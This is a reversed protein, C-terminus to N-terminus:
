SFTISFLISNLLELFVLSSKTSIDIWIVFISSSAWQRRWIWFDGSFNVWSDGNDNCSEGVKNENSGCDDNGTWVSLGDAMDWNCVCFNFFFNVYFKFCFNLVWCGAVFISDVTLLNSFIAAIAEADLTSLGNSTNSFLTAAWSLNSGLRWAIM